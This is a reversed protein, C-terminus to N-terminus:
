DDMKGSRTIGSICMLPVEMYFNRGNLIGEPYAFPLRTNELVAEDRATERARTPTQRDVLGILRKGSACV